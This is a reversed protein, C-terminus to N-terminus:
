PALAERSIAFVRGSRNLWFLRGQSAALGAYPADNVFDALFRANRSGRPIVMVSSSRLLQVKEDSEERVFVVAGDIAGLLRVGTYRPSASVPLDFIPVLATPAATSAQPVRAIQMHEVGASPETEFLAFVDTGDSVVGLYGNYRLDSITMTQKNLLTTMAHTQKDIRVVSTERRFPRGTEVLEDVNVGAYFATSDQAFQKVARNGLLDMSAISGSPTFRLLNVVQKSDGQAGGVGSTLVYFGNQDALMVGDLYLGGLGAYGSPAV